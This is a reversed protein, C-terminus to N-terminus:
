VEFGVVEQVGIRDRREMGFYRFHVVGGDKFPVIEEGEGAWGACTDRYRKELEWYEGVMRGVVGSDWMGERRECRGLLQMATERVDKKHCNIAVYYLPGVLGFDTGFTGSSKKDKEAASM